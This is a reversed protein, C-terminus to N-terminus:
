LSACKVLLDESIKVLTELEHSLPRLGGIQLNEQSTKRVRGETSCAMEVLTEQCIGPEERFSLLVGFGVRKSKLM